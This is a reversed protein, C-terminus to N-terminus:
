AQQAATEAFRLTFVAGGDDANRVSVEGDHAEMTARVIGLGLGAGVLQTRDGRWFRDFVRERQAEDIGPGHDRVSLERGPGVAVEVRGGAPTHRLANEILNRVARALAERHGTVMVEGQRSLAIDRGENWALPVLLSVVDAAMAGLEFTEPSATALGDAQALDLMQGVVRKLGEIDALIRDRAEGPPLREVSLSMVALPTRLEHAANANFERMMRNGEEIRALARNFARVLVEAEMPGEPLTLRAEPHAPDLADAEHAAISLPRTIRRALWLGLVLLLLILPALPLAVHEALELLIAPRLASQDTSRLTMSVWYTGTKADIASTGSMFLGGATPAFRLGEERSEPPLPLAPDGGSALRRGAQDLIDWRWSVNKPPALRGARDGAAVLRESQQRLLDRALQPQDHSYLTLVIAGSALAFGFVALVLTAAFQRFLTPRRSLASNTM